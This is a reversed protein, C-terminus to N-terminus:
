TRRDDNSVISNLYVVCLVDARFVCTWLRSGAGHDGSRPVRWHHRPRLHRAELAARPAGLLLTAAM